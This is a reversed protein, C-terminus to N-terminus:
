FTNLQASSTVYVNFWSLFHFPHQAKFKPQLECVLLMQQPQVLYLPTVTLLLIMTPPHLHLQSCTNREQQQLLRRVTSGSPSSPSADPAPPPTEQAGGFTMFNLLAGASNSLSYYTLLTTVDLVGGM